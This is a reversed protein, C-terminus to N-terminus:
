SDTMRQVMNVDLVEDELEPLLIDVIEPERLPLNTALAESLTTVDGKLVMRGLATRPTWEGAERASRMM